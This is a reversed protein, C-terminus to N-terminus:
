PGEQVYEIPPHRTPVLSKSFDVFVTLSTSSYVLRLFVIAGRSRDIRGRGLRERDRPRNLIINCWGAFAACHRDSCKIPFSSTLFTVCNVDFRACNWLLSM